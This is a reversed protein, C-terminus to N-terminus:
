LNQVINGLPLTSPTFFQGKYRSTDIAYLRCTLVTSVFLTISMISISLRHNPYLNILFVIHWLFLTM